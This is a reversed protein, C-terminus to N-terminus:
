KKIGTVRSVHSWAVASAEDTLVDSLAVLYDMGDILVKRQEPTIEGVDQVDCLVTKMDDLGQATEQDPELQDLEMGRLVVYLLFGVDLVIKIADDSALCQQDASLKLTQFAKRFSDRGANWIAKDVLTGCKRKDNRQPKHKAVKAASRREARSPTM